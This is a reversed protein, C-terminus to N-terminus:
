RGVVDQVHFRWGRDGLLVHFSPHGSNEQDEDKHGEHPEKSQREGYEHAKSIVPIFRPELLCPGPRSITRRLFRPCYVLKIVLRKKPNALFGFVEASSCERSNANKSIVTYGFM